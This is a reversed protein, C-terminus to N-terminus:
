SFFKVFNVRHGYGYCRAVPVPVHLIKHIDCVSLNGVEVEQQSYPLIRTDELILSASFLAVIFALEMMMEKSV